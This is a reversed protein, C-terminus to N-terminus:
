SLAYIIKELTEKADEGTINVKLVAGCPAAFSLLSIMSQADITREEYTFQAKSKSKQLIQVVEMAPRAHLGLLTKIKIEEAINM